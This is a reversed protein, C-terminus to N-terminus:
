VDNKLKENCEGKVYEILDGITTFSFIKEDPIHINYVKEIGLIMEVIDISDLGLDDRFNTEESLKKRDCCYMEVIEIIESFTRM